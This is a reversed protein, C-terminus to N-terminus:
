KGQNTFFNKVRRRIIPKRWGIALLGSMINPAIASHHLDRIWNGVSVPRMDALKNRRLDQRVRRISVDAMLAIVEIPLEIAEPETLLNSVTHFEQAM